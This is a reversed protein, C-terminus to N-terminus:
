VGSVLLTRGARAFDVAEVDRALGCEGASIEEGDVGFCFFDEPM